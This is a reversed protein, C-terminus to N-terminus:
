MVLTVPTGDTEEIKRKVFNIMHPKFTECTTPDPFKYSIVANFPSVNSSCHALKLRVTHSGGCFPCPLRSLLRSLLRALDDLSNQTLM